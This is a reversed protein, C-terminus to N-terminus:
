FLWLCRVWTRLRKLCKEPLAAMAENQDSLADWFKTTLNMADYGAGSSALLDGHSPVAGLAAGLRLFGLRSLYPGLRMITQDEAKWSQNIEPSIGPTDFLHSPHVLVMGAVEDPYEAVYLRAVNAGYSHGVLIYPPPIAANGLLTHLEHM